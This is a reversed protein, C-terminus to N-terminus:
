KFNKHLKELILKQVKAEEQSKSGGVLFSCDYNDGSLYLQLIDGAWEHFHKLMIHSIDEEVKVEAM